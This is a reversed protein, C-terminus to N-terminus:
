LHHPESQQGISVGDAKAFPRILSGTPGTTVIMM